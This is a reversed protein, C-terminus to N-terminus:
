VTLGRIVGHASESKFELTYEGLLEGREFDGDPALPKYYFSRGVLPVVSIRSSDLLLVADDPVYRSMVIKCVGFDSEYINVLNKFLESTNPSYRQTSAVFTNIRRKNGGGVVILDIKSNANKWINRLATNLQNETLAADSPFGGVGVQFVNTSISALIGRMTRRVTGSGQPNASAEQGLIVCNELDRLLERLRAHKQYAMEDAVALQRMALDSGSIQVTSSFIQTVNAMRTRNTFRANTATDGELAANGLILIAAGNALPSLTSSGYGRTVTLQATATNVATVLLVEQAILIQDGPRFNNPNAVAFTTVSNTPDALGPQNIVDTNSVLTDELWEHRTSTAPHRADGLADLLPTEYPSVISIIDSVDEAIEPLTSGASYTSKGTFM